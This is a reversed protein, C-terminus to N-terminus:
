AAVEDINGMVLNYKTVSVWPNTELGFGREKNLGFGIGSNLDPQDRLVRQTETKLGSLNAALTSKGTGAYGALYFYPQSLGNSESNCQNLWASAKTIAEQQQTSFEM